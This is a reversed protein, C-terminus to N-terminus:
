SQVSNSTEVAQKDPPKPASRTLRLFRGTLMVSAFVLSVLFSYWIGEVGWNLTFGLFYGLPLAIIWYAVFTILTPVRVDQIGRLIGVCVAQIGDFLQFFAAIIMLKAALGLVYPDDVFMRPLSEKGFVFVIAALLMFAGGLYIGSLGARRMALTDKRGLSNGVRITAGAAIGTVIMYTIGAFNMAIQHAARNASGNEMWGIVVAAGVFAGVEFFYQLGSPFGIELIKRVIKPRFERWKMRVDYKKFRKDTLVYGMMLVMMFIRSALTGYGAGDLELGPFGWRGCILVWNALTNFGLGLLTIYMAPRTLSLGDTFQKYVLFFVMPIVSFSLIKLYSYALDVDDRPQDLYYLLDASFYVGLSILVSVGIGVWVGQRLYQGVKHPKQAADAEAVLPTIAFTIGIGLVTLIFFIGNALAAASLHVPGVDGIMLNDIFGMLVHGLQGIIVPISLFITERFHKRYPHDHQFLGM